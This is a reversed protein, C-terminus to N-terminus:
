LMGAKFAAVISAVTTRRDIEGVRDQLGEARLLERVAAHAEALRLQSGEAALQAQLKSLMRAGALDVYPTTSLDCVVLKVPEEQTALHRLVESLVHEVNFYLLSSEIRFLLVGAIRENTPHREMDTFRDMGPIRGLLAVHPQSARRLLLLLSVISALVIGRLIGLFLVGVLAVMVVYFEFRSVRWVHSLEHIDILGKIAVLVVAALVAEPLNRFLGTLFLSVLGIIIAALCIAAPTKAGAKDNVASQSLGGAVPYGQGLGALLNAMGLALLERGPNIRYDHRAAFTRAASVSEIYSLLFCAFALPILEDVDTFTVTPLGLPPLGQPLHGVVKVGQEALSTLGILLLSAIVVLLAVPRAPLLKDGVSLLLLAAAGISLVYLNTDGLQLYLEYLRSFFNEGGGPVGFLKPLQTAAISLAAGAKFGLLVTESVFNVLQNLKLLWALLSMAAVMLATLAALAAYQSPDAAALSALATGVALSIAATPGIALQRSTGFLAYGLGGFLYCYLGAQGPLGALSAYAISVPIAYAALTLGAVFDARVWLRSYERLWGPLGHTLLIKLPTM